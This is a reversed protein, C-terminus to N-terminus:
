HILTTAAVPPTDLLRVLYGLERVTMMPLRFPIGKDHANRVQEALKILDHNM